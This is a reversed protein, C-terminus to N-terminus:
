FICLLTRKFIQKDATQQGNFGLGSSGPNNDQCQQCPAHYNSDGASNVRFKLPMLYSSCDLSPVFRCVSYRASDWPMVDSKSIVVNDDEIQFNLLELLLTRIPCLVNGAPSVSIPRSSIYIHIFVRPTPIPPIPLFFTQQVALKKTSARYPPPPM